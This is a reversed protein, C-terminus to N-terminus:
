RIVEVWFPTGVLIGLEEMALDTAWNTVFLHCGEHFVAIGDRTRVLAIWEPAVDTEDGVHIRTKMSIGNWGIGLGRLSQSCVIFTEKMGPVQGATWHHDGQRDLTLDFRRM